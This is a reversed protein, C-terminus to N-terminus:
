VIQRYPLFFFLLFLFFRTSRLLLSFCSTQATPLSAQSCYSCYYISNSSCGTFLLIHRTLALAYSVDQAKVSICIYCLRFHMSANEAKCLRKCCDRLFYLLEVKLSLIKADQLISLLFYRIPCTDSVAFKEFLIRIISSAKREFFGTLEPAYSLQNSCKDRPKFFDRVAVDSQEQLATTTPELGVAGM